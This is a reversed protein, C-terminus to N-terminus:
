PDADSLARALSEAGVSFAQAFGGVVRVSLPAIKFISFDPLEFIGAADPFRALYCAKAAAYEASGTVLPRADGQVTMRARSQPSDGQGAVILLSVRPSALMDGTHAALRSVHIFFDAGGAPQAYPVMSVYPEGDHLTGLAAVVQERLLDRVVRAQDANM